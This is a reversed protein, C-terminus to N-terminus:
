EGGRGAPSDARAAHGQQYGGSWAGAWDDPVKFHPLHREPACSYDADADAVGQNYGQSRRKDNEPEPSGPDIGHTM